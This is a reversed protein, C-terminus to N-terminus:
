GGGCGLAREVVDGARADAEEHVRAASRGRDSICICRARRSARRACAAGGSVGSSEARCARPPRLIGHRRQSKHEPARPACRRTVSRRDNSDSTLHGGTMICAIANCHCPNCERWPFWQFEFRRSARRPRSRAARGPASPV